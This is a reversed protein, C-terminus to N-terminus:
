GLKLRDLSGRARNNFPNFGCLGVVVRFSLCALPLWGMRMPDYSAGQLDNGPSADSGVGSIGLPPALTAQSQPLFVAIRAEDAELIPVM